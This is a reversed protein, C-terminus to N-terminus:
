KQGSPNIDSKYIIKHICRSLADLMYFIRSPKGMRYREGDIILEGAGVFRKLRTELILRANYRKLLEPLTMGQPCADLERLLRIRISSEYIGFVYLVYFFCIFTYIMSSIVVCFVTVWFGADGGSNTQRWLWLFCVGIDTLAGIYYVNMLWKLIDKATIFRFVIFHVALYVVFGIVASSLVINDVSMM